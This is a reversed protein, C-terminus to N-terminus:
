VGVSGLSSHDHEVVQGRGDDGMLLTFRDFERTNWADVFSRVVAKNAEIQVADSVSQTTRSM